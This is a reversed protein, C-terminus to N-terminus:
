PFPSLGLSVKLSLLLFPNRDSQALLQPHPSLSLPLFPSFSHRKPDSSKLLGRAVASCGQKPGALGHTSLGWIQLPGLAPFVPM